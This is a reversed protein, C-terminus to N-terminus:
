LELKIENMCKFHNKPCKEYGLKSCPRCSLGKVELITSKEKDEPLYPYMGFEPITNGWLSIIEKKFAAAIHMLGTDNTIVKRARKILSASQNLNFKGCANFVHAGTAWVIRDGKKADEPGGLLIFKQDSEQLVEIVKEEPYIKTNHKGGIVWGTFGERFGDPLEAIGLEDKEPIFYDLGLFDNKVGLNEVAELYRDVIHIDPLRNIKFNVVLWKQFNVKNFSTAPKKLHMIVGKSRFNKHLDIIHEYNENKLFPLVENIKENITYIKDIHPNAELISKFSSKTLFHVESEPVQKKLGRVVPTTLVIDGISSFRIVLFKRVANKKL